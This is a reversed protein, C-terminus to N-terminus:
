VAGESLRSRKHRWAWHALLKPQEAELYALFERARAPSTQFRKYKRLVWSLLRQNLYDCLPLMASPYFRSSYNFWGRVQDNIDAAIEALTQATRRQLDWARITARHKEETARSIAPQFSSFIHGTTRNKARRPGFTYGLFTFETQEFDAYRASDKCYVIRTKKENIDLKWDKLRQAIADRLHLAHELSDCHVILDDAFREFPVDGYQEQMWDDFAHHLFINSLLPGVVSGQPTGRERQDLNGSPTKLDAKLWREIYLIVWKEQTHQTVLEMMLAHDINDFFGKIDIELVWDYKWCREKAKALAHHQNRRPRYGYSDNHFKPEVNPELYMKAVTQAVRDAVTPIGLLRMGGSNKPIEVAKVAPPFYSGSTMRNWIKYLNEDLRTEFDEVSQGDIGAAGRNAKVRKWAEEVTKQPIDYQRTM